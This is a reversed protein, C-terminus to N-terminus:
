QFSFYVVGRRGMAFFHPFRPVRMCPTCGPVTLPPARHFYWLFSPHFYVQQGTAHDNQFFFNTQRHQLKVKIFAMSKQCYKNPHYSAGDMYVCFDSEVSLFINFAEIKCYYLLTKKASFDFYSVMKNAINSTHWFTSKFYRYM